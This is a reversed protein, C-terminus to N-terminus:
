SAKQALGASQAFNAAVGANPNNGGAQGTSPTNNEASQPSNAARPTDSDQIRARAMARLEPSIRQKPRPPVIEEPEPAKRKKAPLKPTHTYFAIRGMLDYGLSGSWIACALLGPIVGVSIITFFFLAALALGLSLVYGISACHKLDRLEDNRTILNRCHQYGYSGGVILGLIISPPLLYVLDAWHQMGYIETFTLEGLIFSLENSIPKLYFSLISTLDIGLYLAGYLAALSPLLILSLAILLAGSTLTRVLAQWMRLFIPWLPKPASTQKKPYSGKGRAEPHVRLYDIRAVEAKQMTNMREFAASNLQSQQEDAKENRAKLEQVYCYCYRVASVGCILSLFKKCGQWLKRGWRKFREKRDHVEQQSKAWAHAFGNHYGEAYGIEFAEYEGPSHPEYTEDVFPACPKAREPITPEPQHLPTPQSKSRFITKLGHILSKLM